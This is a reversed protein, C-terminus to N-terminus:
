PGTALTTTITSSYTGPAATPPVSLVLAGATPTFTWQGTGSLPAALASAIKQATGGGDIPNLPVSPVPPVLGALSVGPLPVPVNVMTLSGAPLKVGSGDDFRTAEVTLNWGDNTGRADTVAYPSINATVVQTLGNLQVDPFDSAVLPTTYSLSGGTITVSTTDTAAAASVAVTLSATIAALAAARRAFM